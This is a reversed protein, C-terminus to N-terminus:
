DTFFFPCSNSFSSRLFNKHDHKKKNRWDTLESPLLDENCSLVAQAMLKGLWGHYLLGRSSLGGFLWYKCTHSGGVFDDLCGLLPLSGHPTLPPMARLGASAGTFVWNEIAPYIASAKPLLEELAKSAEDPPVDPSYNRSNWEWISGLHLNRPGRVALWADSLISPSYDPYVESIDDPLRLHAIVGRCTRLPLKGSLEPLFVARAGLCVIVASYEGVAFVWMTVNACHQTVGSACCHDHRPNRKWNVFTTLLCRTCACSKGKFGSNSLDKTLNECAIFFAKLYRQPHINIAEPMYFASNLPACLNPVLVQAADGDISEIQCSALCKQANKPSYPHLLVGSVGSAGGSIGDEDYIDISVNLEQPSHQLLALLHWAVSLGAFGAGLVAYRVFISSPSSSMVTPRQNRRIHSRQLVGRTVPANLKWPLIRPNPSTTVTAPLM